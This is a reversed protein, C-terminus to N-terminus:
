AIMVELNIKIEEIEAEVVSRREDAYRKKVEKLDKKIVHFYSKSM